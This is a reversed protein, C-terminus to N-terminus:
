LDRVCPPAHRYFLNHAEKRQKKPYIHQRGISRQRICEMWTGIKEREEDYTAPFGQKLEAYRRLFFALFDAVQLLPLDKSDGFAPVDIIQNLRHGSKPNYGYYEDSWEPPHLVLEPLRLREREQSDFWFFTHGKNSQEPQSCRQVALILHFGLFRWLTNLERPIQNAEAAALYSAKDVATYVVHHKREALWKIVETIVLARNPGDIGRWVGNGSYFNATHLETIRRSTANSLIDLLEIWDRKTLHMRGADVLIGIMTAIPESGTGSEDCYCFNVGGEL